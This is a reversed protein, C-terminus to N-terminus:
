VEIEDGEHGPLVECRPKVVDRAEAILCDITEDDHSPDHHYTVLRRAGALDAFAIADMVTSHGWGVRTAYESPALQSDHILVDADRAIEYGSTWLPDHPFDDESLAPEHDPLYALVRSGTEIRYGVTLGPHCVFDSTVAFGGLEFSGRPVDHCTLRSPFDRLRVPFLPPSLYRNLRSDLHMTSTAPGWVHVELEPDFLPGFFGLGQLHDMHLHTLLIDIRPFTRGLRSGLRRIGTGADLVLLTGAEGHVAVCSTNGGFRINEPGFSALSGRVGWLLAKM